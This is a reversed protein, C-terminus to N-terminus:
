WLYHMLKEGLVDQALQEESLILYCYRDPSEEGRLSSLREGSWHAIELELKGM